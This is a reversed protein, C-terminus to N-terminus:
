STLPVILLHQNHIQTTESLLISHTDLAESANDFEAYPASPDQDFYMRVVSNSNAPQYVGMVDGPQFQVPNTLNYRLVGDPSFEGVSLTIDRVIHVLRNYTTGSNQLRWAHVQPWDTRVGAMYRRVDVGVLVAGISGACTFNLGPIVRLGHYIFNESVVNGSSIKGARKKLIDLQMFGSTCGSVAISQLYLYQSLDQTFFSYRM